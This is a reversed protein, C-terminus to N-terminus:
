NNHPLNAGGDPTGAATWPTVDAEFEVSNLGLHLYIKYIKGAELVMADGSVIGQQDATIFRTIINKVVSGSTQGDNLKGALNGDKTLVDYEITVKLKDTNPIVYIPDTAATAETGDAKCFLNALTGTVGAETAATSTFVESQVLVPNIAAYEKTAETLGEKGDKRGDKITVEAGNNLEDECNFNYWLAKNAKTNNLNLAGKIDFGEFTVSRIFVKTNPDPSAADSGTAPTQKNAYTDVQVNLAALGHKFDFSVKQANSWDTSTATPHQVNLWPKGAEGTFQNTGGNKLAWGSTSTTSNITGWLLDVQKDTYFTSIYKIMPDGTDNNRKMGVIGMTIDGNDEAYATGSTADGNVKGSTPNVSVFPAYAFFSVKDTDDSAANTGFENPWYKVPSYTWSPSTFEVHQNYMFNPTFTQDYNDANTYYGFVGFGVHATKLGPHGNTMEGTKGARTTTRPVYADFGVAVNEASQKATQMETTVDDSSCSALMAAMAAFLYIKKM